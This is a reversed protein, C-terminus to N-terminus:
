VHWFAWSFIRAIDGEAKMSYIIWGITFVILLFYNLYTLSIDAHKRRRQKMACNWKFTRFLTYGKGEINFWDGSEHQLAPGTSLECGGSTRNQEM